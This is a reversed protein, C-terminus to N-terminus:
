VSDRWKGFARKSMRSIRELKDNLEKIEKERMKIKGNRYKISHELNGKRDIAEQAQLLLVAQETSNLIETQVTKSGVDYNYVKGITICPAKEYVERYKDFLEVSITVSGDVNTKM